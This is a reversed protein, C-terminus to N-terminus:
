DLKSYQGRGTRVIQGSKVWQGLYRECSKAPIGNYNAISMADKTNFEDPLLPYLRDRQGIPDDYCKFDIADNKTSMYISTTHRLLVKAICFGIKFDDDTCVLQDALRDEEYARLVTLVMCIRFLILGMRRVSSVIAEGFRGALDNQATTFFANFEDIQEPALVVQIRSHRFKLREYLKMFSEGLSEFGSVLVKDSDLFVNHWILRSNMKYLMFRSFLGNESSPLLRHLQNPTGALLLSIRPTEIRVFENGKRRKYSITEHHFAKRLVDSFQGFGTALVTSLTDGETEFVLGAGGNNALAQCFATASSNAPIYLSSPIPEDPEEDTIGMRYQNMQEEYDEFEDEFQAEMEKQIPDVLKKCLDMHGKGGAANATVFLFLNSYVELGDYIGYVNPLCASLTATAGLFLSDAQEPTKAGKLVDCIFATPSAPLQDSFTPMDAGEDTTKIKAYM